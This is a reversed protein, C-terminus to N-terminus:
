FDSVFRCMMFCFLFKWNMIDNGFFFRCGIISLVVFVDLGVVLLIFFLLGFYWIGKVGVIFDGWCIGSGVVMVINVLCELFLEFIWWELGWEKIVGCFLGIELVFFWFVVLFCVWLVCVFLFFNEWFGVVVDFCMVFFLIWIWWDLLNDFEDVEEM